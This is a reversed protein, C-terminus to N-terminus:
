TKVKNWESEYESIACYFHKLNHMEDCDSGIYASKSGIINIHMMGEVSEVPQALM